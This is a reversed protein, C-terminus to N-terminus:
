HLVLMTPCTGHADDMALHKLMPPRLNLELQSVTRDTLKIGVCNCNHYM